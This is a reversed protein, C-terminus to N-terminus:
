FTRVERVSNDAHFHSGKHEVLLPTIETAPELQQKPPPPTAAIATMPQPTNKDPKRLDDEFSKRDNDKRPEVADAEM